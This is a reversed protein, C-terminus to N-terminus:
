LHDPMLCAALCHTEQAVPGEVLSAFVADAYPRHAFIPRRGETCITILFAQDTDVYADRPLRIPKRRPVDSPM